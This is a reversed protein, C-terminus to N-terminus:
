LDRFLLLPPWIQPSLPVPFTEKGGIGDSLFNGTWFLTFAPSVHPPVDHLHFMTETPIHPLSINKILTHFIKDTEMPEEFFSHGIVNNRILVTWMNIKMSGHHAWFHDYIRDHCYQRNVRGCPFMAEYFTSETFSPWLAFLSKSEHMIKIQLNYVPKLGEQVVELLM